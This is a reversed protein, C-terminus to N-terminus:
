RRKKATKSLEDFDRIWLKVLDLEKEPFLNLSVLIKYVKLLNKPYNKEGKYLKLKSLKNFVFNLNQYIEMEDKLDSVLNHVNRKQFVDSSKFLINKRDNALIIKAILGRWIDTARMSCYSPLYLLPFAKYYWLTNQSNIPVYTRPNISFKLNKKFIFNKKKSILRFIADVDPDGNCIGQQVYFYKKVKNKSIVFDKSINEFPLGRPWIKINKNKLFANYINIWGNTLINKASHHLTINKFFNEKIENDDDTEIIFTSKLKIAKLYGINKRSYSHYPCKKIINFDLKGQKKVDFYDGYVLKFNKPSKKDGIVIFNVSNKNALNDIKRVKNYSNITTLVLTVKKKM